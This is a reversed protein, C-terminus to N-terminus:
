PATCIGIGSVDPVAKCTMGTPCQGLDLRLDCILVCNEPDPGDAVLACAPEAASSEGPPCTARECPPSCFEGDVGAVMFCDQGMPCRPEEPLCPGYLAEAAGTTAATTSGDVTTATEGDPETTATGPVPVSTAGATAPVDGTSTATADGPPETPAPGGPTMASTQSQGVPMTTASSSGETTDDTSGDSGHSVCAVSGMCALALIFRMAM